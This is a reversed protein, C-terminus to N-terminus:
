RTTHCTRWKSGHLSLTEKSQSTSEADLSAIAEQLERLPQRESPISSPSYADVTPSSSSVEVIPVANALVGALAGSSQM